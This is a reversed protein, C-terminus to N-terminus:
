YMKKYGRRLVFMCVKGPIFLGKMSETDKMAKKESPLLNIALQKDAGDREEPPWM